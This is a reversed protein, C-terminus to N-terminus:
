HVNISYPLHFPQEHMRNEKRGYIWDLKGSTVMNRRLSSAPQDQPDPERISLPLIPLTELSAGQRSIVTVRQLDEWGNIQDDDLVTEPTSCRMSGQGIRGNEGDFTVAIFRSPPEYGVDVM